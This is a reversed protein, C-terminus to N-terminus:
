AKAAPVAMSCGDRTQKSRATGEKSDAWKGRGGRQGKWRDWPCSYKSSNLSPHGIPQM